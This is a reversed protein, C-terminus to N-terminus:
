RIAGKKASSFTGAAILSWQSDTLSVTRDTRSATNVSAVERKPWWVLTLYM